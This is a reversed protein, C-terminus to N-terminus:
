PSASPIPWEFADEPLVVTKLVAEIWDGDTPPLRRQAREDGVYLYIMYGRTATAFIVLSGGAGHPEDCYSFQGYIGHVTDDGGGGGGGTCLGVSFPLDGTRYWDWASKGGLPESVVALYLDEQLTPDFIVDVDPADFAVADHGWPETAARTRWGSPYGISLGNLPSDFRETFPPSPQTIDSPTPQDAPVQAPQIKAVGAFLVAIAAAVGVAGVVVTRAARYRARRTLPAADFFPIPEEAAMRELLDRVDQDTM